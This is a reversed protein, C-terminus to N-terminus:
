DAAFIPLCLLAMAKKWETSATDARDLIDLIRPLGITLVFPPVHKHIEVLHGLYDPMNLFGLLWNGLTLATMGKGVYNHNEKLYDAIEPLHTEYLARVERLSSSLATYDLSHILRKYLDSQLVQTKSMSLLAQVDDVSIGINLAFLEPTM